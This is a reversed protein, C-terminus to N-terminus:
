DLWKAVVSVPWFNSPPQVKPPLLDGDVVIDGAGLGLKRGLPM